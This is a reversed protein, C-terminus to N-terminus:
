PPRKSETSRPATRPYVSESKTPLPLPPTRRTTGPPAPRRYGAPSGPPANSGWPLAATHTFRGPHPDTKAKFLPSLESLSGSGPRKRAAACNVGRTFQGTNPWNETEPSGTCCADASSAPLCSFHLFAGFIDKVVYSSCLMSSTHLPFNFEMPVEIEFRHAASHRASRIVLEHGTAPATQGAARCAGRRCM